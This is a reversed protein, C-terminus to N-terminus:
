SVNRQIILVTRDDSPPAGGTFDETTNAILDALRGPTADPHKALLQGLREVGFEEGADDMAEFIGDSIALFIDGPELQVRTTSDVRLDPMIGLPVTDTGIPELVRNGARWIVLPGQGASLLELEGSKIDLMGFVATVFRGEPLRTFLQENVLRAAESLSGGMRWALRTMANLQTVALAPGVGHGTADALLIAVRDIHEADAERDISCVAGDKGSLAMVDFTDGGTEEAPHSWAAIAYGKPNPLKKPLTNEQIKRALDLNGRLQTNLKVYTSEYRRLLYGLGTGTIGLVVIVSICAVGMIWRTSEKGVSVLADVPQHVLLRLDSGPVPRTAVFHFDGAAFEVVGSADPTASADLFDYESADSELGSRLMKGDFSFGRLRPNKNIDPHCLIHGDPEILCAFGGDPLEKLADGEIIAQLQKWDDSGYEVKGSVKPLLAAVRQAIDRNQEITRHEIVRAFSRQVVRFTVFWGASLVVGQVILAAAILGAKSKLGAKNM